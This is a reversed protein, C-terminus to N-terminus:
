GNIVGEVASEVVSVSEIAAFKKLNGVAYGEMRIHNQKFRLEDEDNKQKRWQTGEQTLIQLNKTNTVWLQDAPFFPPTYAKKGAITKALSQAAKHETPSDAAELLRHQEAAVLNSGVLVVLDPDQRHEPAITTNILDQTLSDLNKYSDTATGTPDLKASALVQSSRKEKVITLWGKNVDQGLPNKIPDTNTAISTGNFGVRLMDLAFRRSIASKMMSLWHGKSGSNAWQTMTEWLIHAGSDTKTLEYTNGSQGVEVSFRGSGSRGTSLGDDGVDVVQGKIQQVPLLSVMGLFADSEMIAQRLKTEMPPTLNFSQTGQPANAASLTATCFEQLYSTSLANLM